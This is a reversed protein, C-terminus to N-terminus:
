AIVEKVYSVPVGYLQAVHRLDMDALLKMVAHKMRVPQARLQLMDAIVARAQWSESALLSTVAGSGACVAREVMGSRVSADPGVGPSKSADGSGTVPRQRSYGAVRGSRGSQSPKPLSRAM